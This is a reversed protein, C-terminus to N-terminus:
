ITQHFEGAESTYTLRRERKQGVWIRNNPMQRELLPAITNPKGNTLKWEGGCRLGNSNQYPGPTWWPSVMPFFDGNDAAYMHIALGIQKTNNLCAARLARDKARSLAPLLMAALIAIIAIVVLLEILTFADSCSPTAKRQSASGMMNRISVAQRLRARGETM